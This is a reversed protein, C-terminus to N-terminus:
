WRATGGFLPGFCGRRNGRSQLSSKTPLEQTKYDAQQAEIRTNRIAALQEIRRIYQTLSDWTKGVRRSIHYM